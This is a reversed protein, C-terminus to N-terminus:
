KRRRCIYIFKPIRGYNFIDQLAEACSDSSKNKLARVWAYKSLVCICSLLFAYNKNSSATSRYDILDIQWQQDIESAITQRRPFRRIVQKHLNYAPFETIPSYDNFKNNNKFGSLGSYAGANEPDTYKEIIDKSSDGM